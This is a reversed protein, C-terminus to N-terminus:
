FDTRVDVSRRIKLPLTILFSSKLPKEVAFKVESHAFDTMKRGNEFLADELWGILFRNGYQTMLLKALGTSPLCEGKVEARDRPAVLPLTEAKKGLM